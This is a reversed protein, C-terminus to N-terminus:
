CCGGVGERRRVVRVGCIGLFFCFAFFCVFLLLFCCVSVCFFSTSGLYNQNLNELWVLLLERCRSTILLLLRFIRQWTTDHWQRWFLCNVYSLTV